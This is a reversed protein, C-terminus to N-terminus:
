TRKGFLTTGLRIYQPDFELADMYDSSMGISAGGLNLDSSLKSILQFHIKPDENLPPVCMLGEINNIGKSRCMELFEKTEEPKVGSKTEENGTNVQIFFTKNKLKEPFKILEKVLKERDLTHFVSFLDLAVKVKNTQLPGTLHLKIQKNMKLINEFKLKAEQVRNEGFVEVGKSIAEEVQEIPHNKSIAVIQTKKGLNSIIKQIKHYNELDFM